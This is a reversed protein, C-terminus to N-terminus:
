KLHQVKMGSTVHLQFRSEPLNGDENLKTVTLAIRVGAQPRDISIKSPYVVRSIHRYTSYGVQAELNGSGDYIDQVYPLLDERHITVVRVETMQQSGPTLRAVNVIYEPVSLLRKKKVDEITESNSIVAYHDPPELGRVYGSGDVASPAPIQGPGGGYKGGAPRM